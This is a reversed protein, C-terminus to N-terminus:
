LLVDGVDGLYELGDLVRHPVLEFAVAVLVLPAPLDQGDIAFGHEALSLCDGRSEQANVIFQDLVGRDGRQGLCLHAM